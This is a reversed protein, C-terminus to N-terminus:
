DVNQPLTGNWARATKQGLVKPFVTLPDIAEMPCGERYTGDPEYFRDHKALWFIRRAFCGSRGTNPANDELEAYGIIEHDQYKVKGKRRTCCTDFHERVYPIADINKLWVIKSESQIDSATQAKQSM